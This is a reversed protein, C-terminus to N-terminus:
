WYCQGNELNVIINHTQPTLAFVVVSVDDVTSFGYLWCGVVFLVFSGNNTHHVAHSIIHMSPLLRTFMVHCFCMTQTCFHVKWTSIPSFLYLYNSHKVKVRSFPRDLLFLDNNNYIHLFILKNTKFRRTTTRKYFRRTYELIWSNLLSTRCVLCVNKDQLMTRWENSLNDRIL